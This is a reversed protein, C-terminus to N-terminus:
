ELDLVLVRHLGVQRLTDAVKGKARVVLNGGHRRVEGGLASIAGLYQSGMYTVGTLDLVIEKAGRKRAAEVHNRTEIDFRVDLPWNLTGRVFLTDGRAEYVAEDM